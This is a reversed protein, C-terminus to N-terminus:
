LEFPICCFSYFLPLAICEELLVTSALFGVGALLYNIGSNALNQVDWTTCSKKWWGYSGANCSLVEHWEWGCMAWFGLRVCRSVASPSIKRPCRMKAGQTELAFGPQKIPIRIEHNIFYDGYLQTTTWGRYLGVLWPGKKWPEGQYVCVDELFHISM